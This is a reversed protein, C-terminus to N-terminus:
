GAERTRHARDSRDYAHVIDAVLPHRVIDSPQLRVFGIKEIDELVQIAQVLGSTTRPPLDIQTVDGTIVMKAREGLRTLFMRMQAATTNQAEDLVVYADDLTRGRMFALPAVEIIQRELMRALRERPLMDQLADYLPRLYPDVKETLDGPLFGLKEGAEVAPRTLIIRRVAGRQLASVAIAMALYTKGSGAPGVGFVVDRTRLMQVYARQGPSRPSIPRGDVNMLVTDDFFARLSATPDARLIRIAHHVDTPHLEHGRGVYDYLQELVRAGLAVRKLAEADDEIAGPVGIWVTSGRQHVDVDLARSVMDLHSGLEGVLERLRGNDDFTLSRETAKSGTEIPVEAVLGSVCGTDAARNGNRRFGVWPM